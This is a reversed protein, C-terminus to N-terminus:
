SVRFYPEVCVDINKAIERSKEVLEEIEGAPLQLLHFCLRIIYDGMYEPTCKLFGGHYASYMARNAAIGVVEYFKLDIDTISPNILRKQLQYFHSRQHGDMKEDDTRINGAKNIDMGQEIDFRLLKDDSLIMEVSKRQEVAIGLALNYNRYRIYMKQSVCNRMDLRFQTSIMGALAIKSGFYYTFLGNNVEADKTIQMVTTAEYGQEYFLKKASNVIKQKTDKGKETEAM